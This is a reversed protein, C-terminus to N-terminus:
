NGSLIGGESADVLVSGKNRNLVNTSSDDRSCIKFAFYIQQYKLRTQCSHAKFLMQM